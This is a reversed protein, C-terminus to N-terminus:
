FAMKIKELGDSFMLPLFFVFYISQCASRKQSEYFFYSSNHAGLSQAFYKVHIIQNKIRM